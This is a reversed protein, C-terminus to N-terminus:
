WGSLSVDKLLGCLPKTVELAQRAKSVTNWQRGPKASVQMLQPTTNWCLFFVLESMTCDPVHTWFVPFFQRVQPYTYTETSM